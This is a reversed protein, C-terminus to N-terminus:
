GFSNTLCAWCQLANGADSKDFGDILWVGYICEVTIEPNALVVSISILLSLAAEHWTSLFSYNLIIMVYFCLLFVTLM